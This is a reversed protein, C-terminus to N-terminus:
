YKFNNRCISDPEAQPLINMGEAIDTTYSKKMSECHARNFYLYQYNKDISFLITGKQSELSSKLLLQSDKLAEGNEIRESIDQILPLFYLPKNDKDRVLSITLEGWVIVGDKRLYRKQVLASQIEGGAVQKMENFGLERDEPYTIDAITKGILEKETYGIFRSFADNCKIFFKDLGILATGVHSQTFLGRFQSETERLKEENNKLEAIQNELQQYTPNDKM